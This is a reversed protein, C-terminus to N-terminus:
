TIGLVLWRKEGSLPVVFDLSFEDQQVIDVGALPLGRRKMWEMVGGLGCVGALEGALAPHDNALARFSDAYEM